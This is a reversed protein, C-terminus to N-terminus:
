VMWSISQVNPKRNLKNQNRFESIHCIISIHFLAHPCHIHLCSVPTCEGGLPLVLRLQLTQKIVARDWQTTDRERVVCEERECETWLTRM